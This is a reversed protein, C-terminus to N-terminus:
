ERIVGDFECTGADGWAEDIGLLSRMTKPDGKAIIPFIHIWLRVLAMEVRDRVEYALDGPDPDIHSEGDNIPRFELTLVIVEVREIKGLVMRRAVHLVREKHLGVLTGLM